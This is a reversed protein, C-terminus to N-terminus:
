DIASLGPRVKEGPARMRQRLRAIPIAAKDRAAQETLVLTGRVTASLTCRAPLPVPVTLELGAPM